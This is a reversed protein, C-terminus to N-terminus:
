HEVSIRGLPYKECLNEGITETESTLIDALDRGDEYDEHHIYFEVKVHRSNAHISGHKTRDVLHWHLEPHIRRRKPEDETFAFQDEGERRLVGSAQKTVRLDGNKMLTTLDVCLYIQKKMITFTQARNQYHIRM